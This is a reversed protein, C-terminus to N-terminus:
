DGFYYRGYVGISDNSTEVRDDYGNGRDCQSVHRYSLDVSWQGFDRLYGTGAYCGIDGRGLWYDQRVGNKGLGLEMYFGENASCKSLLVFVVIWFVLCFVIVFRM